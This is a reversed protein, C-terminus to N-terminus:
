RGGYYFKQFRQALETQKRANTELERRRTREATAQEETPQQQYVIAEAAGELQMAESERRQNRLQRAQENLWAYRQVEEVPLPQNM